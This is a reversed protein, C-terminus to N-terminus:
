DSGREDHLFQQKSGPVVDSGARSLTAVVTRFLILFDDWIRKNGAYHADIHLREDWGVNNRGSIQALGTIGPRVAHRLKEEEKYYPVYEPLLPRPGVLSMDGRLVNWLQPLEDLSSARLFRGFKTLRQVPQLVNGQKDAEDLMSRFKYLTFPEENLGIRTQTFIVPRGMSLATLVAAVGTALLIFPLFLLILITDAIRKVALRRRHSPKRLLENM